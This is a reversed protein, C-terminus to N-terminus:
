EVYLTESTTVFIVTKVNTKRAPVFADFLLINM